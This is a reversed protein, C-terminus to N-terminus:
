LAFYTLVKKGEGFVCVCVYKYDRGIPSPIFCLTYLGYVVYLRPWYVVIYLMCDPTPVWRHVVHLRSRKTYSYSLESIVPSTVPACLNEDKKLTIYMKNAVSQVLEWPRPGDGNESRRRDSHLTDCKRGRNSSIVFACVCACVCVCVFLFCTKLFVPLLVQRLFSTLQIPGLLIAAMRERWPAHCLIVFITEEWCPRTTMTVM